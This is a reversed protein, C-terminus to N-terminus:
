VGDNLYRIPNRPKFKDAPCPWQLPAERLRTYSAGRLDYGTHPNFALKIEEFIEEASSYNFAFAYGMECAIRAIIKWDPLASGPPAIARQMLTLNRESNIMVGEAEAW